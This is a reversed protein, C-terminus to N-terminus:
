PAGGAPDKVLDAYFSLSFDNTPATVQAAIWGRLSGEHLRLLMAIRHPARRTDDTPVIGVFRGGLLGNAFSADNVPTWLAPSEGFRARVDSEGVRLVIPVTRDHLQVTGSWTGRAEAPAAFSAPPGTLPTPQAGARTAVRRAREAAYVPMVAAALDAALRGPLPSAQNALAVVAVGADPYIAVVTNV